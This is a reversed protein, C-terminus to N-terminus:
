VVEFGGRRVRLPRDLLLHESAPIRALNRLSDWDGDAPVPVLTLTDRDPILAVVEDGEDLQEPILLLRAADFSDLAKVAVMNNDRLVSTVLDPSFKLRLNKLALEHVGELDLGLEA